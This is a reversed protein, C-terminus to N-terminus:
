GSSGSLAQCKADRRRRPNGRWGTPTTGTWRRFARTFASADGYGLAASIEVLPMTTSEVLQRAVEFRVEGVLEHVSTGLEELRRNLTRRHMALREAVNEVSGRGNLLLMRLIRRVEAVLDAGVRSELEEVSRKLRRYASPDAGRTRQGLWTAPFVLATREVDFRLPARFFRRFPATDPPRRHCFLVETPRWTPGCLSRMINTVIAIGGDYIQESDEVGAQYIAYDLTAVGGAVRLPAIVGRDVLHLHSILNRLATGVDPSHHTLLGVLGLSSLGSRQGVLLGLHTCGTRAVARALLRGLDVFAIQNSPDDFLASDVGVEALLPDPDAGLQHLVAPIGTVADVRVCGEAVARWEPELPPPSSARLTAAPM